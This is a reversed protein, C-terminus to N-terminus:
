KAAAVMYDVAAKVDADALTTNGGKPPMAGKGKISTAYLADMGTKIRPAWMTKDGFKPAGAVGQGHCAVCAQNYTAKGKDESAAAPAAAVTAAAQGALAIEVRRAEKDAGTGTTEVPPKMNIRDQAVGGAILADRVAKARDKALELNKALNGSKDTYGTVDVKDSTAKLASVVAGVTGKGDATLAAKGTDFYVKAPLSAPVAAAPVIKGGAADFMYLIANKMEPDTLDAFGGRAPMGSHGRIASATVKDIGASIRKSWAARDGIKPAGGEGTLHCTGCGAQVIQEGTRGASAAPPAVAAAPEKWNAGAQNALYAVARAMEVDSLDPNGGRPPMARIGKISDKVLVDMGEKILPAWAAKDGTKPAGAAGTAHCASCVAKYVEEGTKAVRPGAAAAAFEVRAVPQIRRAVADPEEGQLAASRYGSIVFGALLVLGIVPVVFALVVVIALQQPTKIPSSHAHEYGQDKM